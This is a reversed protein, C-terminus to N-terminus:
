VLSSEFCFSLFFLHSTPRCMLSPTHHTFPDLSGPVRLFAINRHGRDTVDAQGASTHNLPDSNLNSCLLGVFLLHWPDIVCAIQQLSLALCRHRSAAAAQGHVESYVHTKIASKSVGYTPASYYCRRTILKPIVQSDSQFHCLWSNTKVGM